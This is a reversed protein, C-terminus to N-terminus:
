SIIGGKKEANKYAAELAQLSLADQQSSALQVQEFRMVDLQGLSEMIAGYQDIDMLRIAINRKADHGIIKRQREYDVVPAISLDMAQVDKEPIDFQSLATMIQQMKAEVKKYAVGATPARADVGIVFRIQDPEISVSANGQVVITKVSHSQSHDSALLSSPAALFVLTMLWVKFVNM